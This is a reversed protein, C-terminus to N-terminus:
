RRRRLVRRKTYRRQRRKTQRRQRRRIPRKKKTQRKNRRRKSKRRGGDLDDDSDPSNDEHSPGYMYENVRELAAPAAELTQVLQSQAANIEGIVGLPQSLTINVTATVPGEDNPAAVTIPGSVSGNIPNFSNVLNTLETPDVELLPVQEESSASDMSIDSMQSDPKDPEDTPLPIYGVLEATESLLATVTEQSLTSNTNSLKSLEVGLSGVLVSSRSSAVSEALSQAASSAASVNTSGTRSFSDPNTKIKDVLIRTLEALAADHEAARAAENQETKKLADRRAEM